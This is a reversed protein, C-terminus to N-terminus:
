SWANAPVLPPRSACTTPRQRLWHAIAVWLALGIGLVFTLAVLFKGANETWAVFRAARSTDNLEDLGEQACMSSGDAELVKVYAAKSETEYGLESLADAADCTPAPPPDSSELSTLGALACPETPAQLLVNIYAFRAAEPEGGLRLANARACPNPPAEQGHVTSAGFVALM